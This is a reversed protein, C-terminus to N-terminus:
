ADFRLEFLEVHQARHHLDIGTRHHGSEFELGLGADFVAADGRQGFIQAQAQLGFGNQDLANGALRGHADLHRVRLRSTIASRCISSDSSNVCACDRSVMEIPLSMLPRMLTAASSDMGCRSIAPEVPEPLLTIILEMIMDIRYLDVGSSTRMIMTSGLRTSSPMYSPMGCRSVGTIVSGLFAVLASRLATSSISRRSRRSASNPTRLMSWNLLFIRLICSSGRLRNSSSSAM